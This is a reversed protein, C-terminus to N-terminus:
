VDFLIRCSRIVKEGRKFVLVIEWRGPMVINVPLLYDNKASLKFLVEGSDHHGRMSPMDARGSIIFDSIQRSDNTFIKIKLIATGMKPAKDFEWVFYHDDDLKNKGAKVVELEDATQIFAQRELSVINEGGSAISRSMLVLSVSFLVLALFIKRLM